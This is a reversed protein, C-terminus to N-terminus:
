SLVVTVAFTCQTCFTCRLWQVVKLLRCSTTNRVFNTPCLRLSVHAMIHRSHARYHISIRSDAGLHQVQLLYLKLLLRIFDSSRYFIKTHFNNFGKHANYSQLLNKCARVHKNYKYNKMYKINIYNSKRSNQIIFKSPSM